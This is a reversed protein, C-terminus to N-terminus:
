ESLAVETYHPEKLYSTLSRPGTITSTQIAQSVHLFTKLWKLVNILKETGYASRIQGSGPMNYDQGSVM